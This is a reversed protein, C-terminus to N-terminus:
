HRSCHAHGHSCEGLEPLDDYIPEDYTVVPIWELWEDATLAFPSFPGDTKFTAM